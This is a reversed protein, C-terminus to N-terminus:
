KLPSAKGSNYDNYGYHHGGGSKLYKPFTSLLAFSISNMSNYVQDITNRGKNILLFGM